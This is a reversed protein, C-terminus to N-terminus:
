DKSSQPHHHSADQLFLKHYEDESLYKRLLATFSDVFNLIEQSNVRESLTKAFKKEGALQLFCAFSEKDLKEDLGFCMKDPEITM